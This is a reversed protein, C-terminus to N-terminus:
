LKELNNGNITVVSCQSSERFLYMVTQVEEDRVGMKNRGVEREGGTVM